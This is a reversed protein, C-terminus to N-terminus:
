MKAIHEPLQFDMFQVAIFVFYQGLVFPSSGKKCYLKKISATTVHGQM